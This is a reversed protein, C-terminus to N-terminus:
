KKNSIPLEQASLLAIHRSPLNQRHRRAGGRNRAAPRGDSAPLYTEAAFVMGEKIELRRDLSVLRRGSGTDTQRALGQTSKATPREHKTNFESKQYSARRCRERRDFGIQPVAFTQV